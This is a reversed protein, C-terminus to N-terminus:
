ASMPSGAAGEMSAPSTEVALRWLKIALKRAVACIAKQSVGCKALHRNYLAQAEEDHRRWAWAGEVLVARLRAQGVSRLRARVPGQGSRRVVPALGLYSSVEEPRDFREPAFMEALFTTAVVEGVGGVQTLRAYREPYLCRTARRVERELALHEAHLFRYERILSAMTSDHGPGLPLAALDDTVTLMWRESSPPEAVGTALLFGKIKQKLKALSEAVRKRRRVLARYGEEEASPIAVSRLLGRAFYTALKTADIRDSKAAAAAGRPIRSAAIVSANFGADRLARCLSFGTPGTEYVVHEIRCGLGELQEVLGAEDAPCNWTEVQGDGACFLAVSYTHKHVDVGVFVPDDGVSAVFRALRRSKTAMESVGLNM